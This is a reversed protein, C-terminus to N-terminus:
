ASRAAVFVALGVINQGTGSLITLQDRVGEGGGLGLAGALGPTTAVPPGTGSPTRTPKPM